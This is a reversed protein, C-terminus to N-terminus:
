SVLKQIQADFEAVAVAEAQGKSAAWARERFFSGAFGPHGRGLQVKKRLSSGRGLAHAAVGLDILHAIKGPVYRQKGHAGELDARPGAIGLVGKRTTAVKSDISKKLLHPGSWKGVPAAAKMAAKVIRIAKTIGPRLVRNQLGRKLGELQALTKKLGDLTVRAM